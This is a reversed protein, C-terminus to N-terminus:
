DKKFKLWEKDALNKKEFPDVLWQRKTNILGLFKSFFLHLKGEQILFSEPNADVLAGESIAIACFGGYEPIYKNPNAIFTDKNAESKFRYDASNFHFVINKNGKVAKANDVIEILDYGRVAIGKKLNKM